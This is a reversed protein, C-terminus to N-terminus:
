KIVRDKLTAARTKLHDLLRRAWHFERALLALGLAGVVIGPGPLVLMAIGAGLLAFGAGITALRTLHAM